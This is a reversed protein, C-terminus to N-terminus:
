GACARTHFSLGRVCSTKMPTPKPRFFTRSMMAVVAGCLGARRMDELRHEVVARSQLRAPVGARGVPTLAQQQVSEDLEGKIVTCADAFLELVAM